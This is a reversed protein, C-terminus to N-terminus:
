RRSQLASPQGVPPAENRRLDKLERLLYARRREIFRKVQAFGSHLDGTPGPWRRRDLAAEPGIEFELRDLVPFMKETTFQKELLEELRDLFRARLAPESFFRDALRNWGTVGPFQRTGLLVPLRAEEFSGHWHDGFTRDLDWPVVFWKRSDRSDYVLFHNKNFGDWHQILTSAALYNIYKELDVRQTFFDLTNTARSLGQCFRRLERFGEDKQTEMDYHARYSEESGFSREDAQNSRSIAKFVVAGKLNLRNLFAKEPQEIEVYLGRFQGNLDIRVMRSEPAPVGCAAYIQYALTERVFAPDRWGSNLNLCHHGEFLKDHNFFIKLPKKPWSRAWQGRYRVQVQDYVQGNAVFTAPYTDNAFANRELAMVDKPDMKLEYFPVQCGLPKAQVYFAFNPTPSNQSPLRQLEQGPAEAEVWYRVLTGRPLSPFQVTLRTELTTTASAAAAEAKAELDQTQGDAELRLRMKEVGPGHRVTVSLRPANGPAVQEPETKAEVLVLSKLSSADPLARTESALTADLSSVRRAARVDAAPPDPPPILGSSLTPQGTEVAPRPARGASDRHRDCGSLVFGLLGLSVAALSGIVSSARVAKAARAGYVRKSTM